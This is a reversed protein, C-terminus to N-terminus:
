VHHNEMAINTWWLTFESKFGIKDYSYPMAADDENNGGYCGVAVLRRLEGADLLCFM